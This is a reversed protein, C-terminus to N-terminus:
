IEHSYLNDIKKFLHYLVIFLHCSPLFLNYLIIESRKTDTLDRCITGSCATVSLWQWDSFVFKMKVNWLTKFLHIPPLSARITCAPSTPLHCLSSTVLKLIFCLVPLPFPVFTPCPRIATLARAISWKCTSTYETEKLSVRMQTGINNDDNCCNNWGLVVVFYKLKLVSKPLQKMIHFLIIEM